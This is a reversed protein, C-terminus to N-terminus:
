DEVISIAGTPCVRVAREVSERLEEPPEEQLVRAQDEDDTLELVEPAEGICMANGECLDPDIVVRM